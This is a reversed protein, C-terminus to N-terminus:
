NTIEIIRAGQSDSPVHFGRSVEGPQTEGGPEAAECSGRLAGSPRQRSDGEPRAVGSDAVGGAGGSGKDQAYRGLTVRTGWTAHTEFRPNRMKARAFPPGLSSTVIQSRLIARQIGCRNEHKVRYSSSQRESRLRLGSPLFRCNEVFRQLGSFASIIVMTEPKGREPVESMICISVAPPRVATESPSRRASMSLGLPYRSHSRMLCSGLSGESMLSASPLTTLTM